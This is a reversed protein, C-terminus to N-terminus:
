PLVGEPEGVECRDAPDDGLFSLSRSGGRATLDALSAKRGGGHLGTKKPQELYRGGEPTWYLTANGVKGNQRNKIKQVYVVTKREEDLVDRWIVIGNDAKNRWHAGGSIDYLTPVPYSGDRDRYMKAPHAVVFMHVGHARAFRRIKTLSSSIYLDEREQGMAHDIENWPDILFGRIGYRTVMGRAKALIGDLNLTEEGHVAFYFHQHAWELAVVLEQQSLRNSTPGFSKGCHKEVLKAVHNSVPFNEPSFVGFSWGHAEAMNVMLADMWESKGHSPIGSVVTLEGPRVTYYPDVSGWGTSVGPRQNHRYLDVVEEALDAVEFVGEIPVPTARDIVSALDAPGCKVLVDNADKCGDPWQVTSCRDPGLRRALEEELRKGPEDCDVALVIRGFGALFDQCNDLYEFKSSYQKTTPSPAGDPVSVVFAVGAMQVSLADIEGEVIVLTAGAEPTDLNGYLVKEAGTHQRFAKTRLARYKVNVVEGNRFYPFQICEVYEEESPMYAMGLTIQNRQVIERSIGRQEFWAYLEATRRSEDSEYSPRSHVVKKTLTAKREEGTSLGGKWGCHHCLWVGRETNVSLPKVHKKKRSGSCQPCQCAVQVGRGTGIEIGFDAFTQM